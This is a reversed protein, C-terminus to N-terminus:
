RYKIYVPADIEVIPTTSANTVNVSRIGKDTGDDYIYPVRNDAESFAFIEYEGDEIKEFIFVGDVSARVDDFYQEAGKKRIYVREGPAPQSILSTIKAKIEGRIYTKGYMKGTHIYIDDATGIEGKKVTVTEIVAEKFGDQYETYAFVKYTGKHLYKFKFYGDPGTRMDDSYPKEDGYQIYVRVDQAPITDKEHNFSGGDPHLVQYVFGDVSATGGEGEQNVCSFLM